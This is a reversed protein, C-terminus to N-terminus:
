AEAKLSQGPTSAGLPLSGATMNMNRSMSADNMESVMQHEQIRLAALDRRREDGADDRGAGRRGRRRQGPLGAQPRSMWNFMQIPMVTFPSKLWEFSV